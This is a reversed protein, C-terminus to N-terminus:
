YLGGEAIYFVCDCWWLNESPDYYTNVSFAGDTTYSYVSSGGKYNVFYGYIEMNDFCKAIEESAKAKLTDATEDELYDFDEPMQAALVHCATALTEFDMDELCKNTAEVEKTFDRVYKPTEVKPVDPRFRDKCEPCEVYGAEDIEDPTYEFVCHCYPCTGINSYKTGHQYVKIM